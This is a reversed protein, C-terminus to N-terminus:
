TDVIKTHSVKILAIKRSSGKGTFVSNTINIYIAWASRKYLLISAAVLNKELPHPGGAVYSFHTAMYSSSCLTLLPLHLHAHM